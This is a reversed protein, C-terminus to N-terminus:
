LTPEIAQWFADAWIRYGKNSPHFFDWSYNRFSQQDKTLAQLEALPLSYREAAQRVILSAALANDNERARGGFYPMTAVFTKPPLAKALDDYEEAFTTENLKQVNNAGIEITIVDAQYKKLEPLQKEIVSAVTAGSVSLNIVRVTKGTKHQIRDAVIGVYGYEARSAGIGQAASDGLAVYTLEGDVKARENWYTAYSTLNSRLRLLLGVEIIAALVIFGAIAILIPKLVTDTYLM